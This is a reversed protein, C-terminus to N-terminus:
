TLARIAKAITSVAALDWPTGTRGGARLSRNRARPEADVGENYSRVRENQVYNTFAHLV